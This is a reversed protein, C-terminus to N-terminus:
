VDEDDQCSNTNKFFDFCKEVPINSSSKKNGNLFKWFKRPEPTKIKRLQKIKSLKFLNRETALTRKNTKSCTKLRHKNSETQRLKYLDKARHFDNRAVLTLIFVSLLFLYCYPVM